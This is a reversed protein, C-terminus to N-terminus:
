RVEIVIPAPAMSTDTPRVEGKYVGPKADAPVDVRVQFTDTANAAVVRKDDSLSVAGAAIRDGADSVLDTAALVFADTASDAGNAFRLRTTVEDGAQVPHLPTLEPVVGSAPAASGRRAVLGSLADGAAEGIADLVSGAAHAVSTVADGIEAVADRAAKGAEARSKGADSRRPEDTM